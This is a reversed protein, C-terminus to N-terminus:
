GVPDFVIPRRAANYARIAHVYNDLGDPTVTGMNVLLAGGGIAALDPAERAYTSMIPSAGVALAVNAAFNQM